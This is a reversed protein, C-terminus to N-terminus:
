DAFIMVDGGLEIRLAPSGAITEQSTSFQGITIGSCDWGIDFIFSSISLYYSEYHKYM